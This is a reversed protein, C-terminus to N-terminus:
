CLYGGGTPALREWAGNRVIMGLYCGQHQEQGLRIPGFMGDADYTDISRMQQVLAERSIPRPLAELSEFFVKTSVWSDISFLDQPIGPSVRNMWEVYTAMAENTSSEETPLSRLWSMSGEAAPGALEIFQTGYTTYSYERILWEHGTDEVARAMKAQGNTDLTAWFYNAGSNAARRAAADYSLTSIPLENVDVVELGAAEMLGIQINAELRSQDIALYAMAVKRAGQEYLYEYKGIKMDPRPFEPNVDFVWRSEWTEGTPTNVIPIELEDILGEGGVDGVAFGGAIGVVEPNLEQLAARYRGNDLGDDVEKLM